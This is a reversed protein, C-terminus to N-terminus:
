LVAEVNLVSIHDVDEWSLTLESGLAMCKLVILKLILLVVKIVLM